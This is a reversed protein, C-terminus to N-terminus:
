DGHETPTGGNGTVQNSMSSGSPFGDLGIVTASSLPKIQYSNNLKTLINVVGPCKKMNQYM